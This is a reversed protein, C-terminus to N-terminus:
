SLDPNTYWIKVTIKTQAGLNNQIRLTNSSGYINMSTGTGATNSANNSALMTVTGNAVTSDFSFIASARDGGAADAAVAIGFGQMDSPITVPMLAADNVVKSESWEVTDTVGPSFSSAGGVTYFPQNQKIAVTAGIAPPSSTAGWIEIGGDADSLQIRSLDTMTEQSTSARQYNQFTLGKVTSDANISEHGNGGNSAANRIICQAVNRLYIGNIYNSLTVNEITVSRLASGSSQNIYIGYGCDEQLRMTSANWSGNSLTETTAHPLNTGAGVNLTDGVGAICSVSEPQATTAAAYKTGAGAALNIAAVLNDLSTSADVGIQVNGDVNTLTTEFTYTKSGVTVTEGNSANGTLTLVGRAHAAVETPQNAGGQECRFNNIHLDSSDSVSSNNVRIGHKCVAGSFNTIRMNFNNSGAFDIGVGNVTDSMNCFVEDLVIFDADLTPARPNEDFYFGTVVDKFRVQKCSIFDRGQVWVGRSNLASQSYDEIDVREM